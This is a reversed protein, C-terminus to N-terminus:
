SCADETCGVECRGWSSISSVLERLVPHHFGTRRICHAPCSARSLSCNISTCKGGSPNLVLFEAPNILVLLALPPPLCLSMGLTLAFLHFLHATGQFTVFWQKRWCVAQSAESAM